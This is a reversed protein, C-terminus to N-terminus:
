EPVKVTISTSSVVKPTTDNNKVTIILTGEDGAVTAAGTIINAGTFATLGTAGSAAALTVSGLKTDTTADTYQGDGNKDIYLDGQNLTGGAQEEIRIVSSVSKTLTIGKVIDDSASETITFVSKYDVKKGATTISPVSKFTVASLEPKNDTVTVRVKGVLVDNADYLAIDSSGLKKNATASATINLETGAALDAIEGTADGNVAVVNKDFVVKYNTLDQPDLKVGEATYPQLRYIVNTEEYKDITADASQGADIQAQTPAKIELVKKASTTNTTVKVSLAGVTVNDENKFIVSTSKDYNSSDTVSHVVTLKYLGQEPYDTDAAIVFSGAVTDDVIADVSSSLFLDTDEVAGVVPDGYQDYVNFKVSDNIDTAADVITLSSSKPTVKAVKREASAVTVSITKTASGYTLTLTATGPTNATFKGTTKDFSVVAANSTKVELKGDALAAAIATTDLITEKGNQTARLETLDVTDGTVFTSSKQTFDNSLDGATTNTLKYSNITTAVLEKNQITIEAQDSVIVDSGKSLTVQVKYETGATLGATKLEGTTTNEFLEGTADQTVGAVKKTAAFSVTYGNVLLDNVNGASGNVKFSVFQNSTDDDYTATDVAVTTAALKYTVTFDKSAVTVKTATDPILASELTVTASKGDAAAVYSSVTNGEVKVDDAKLKNLNTGTVTVKTSNTASVAEVVPPLAAEYAKNNKEAAKVLNKALTTDKAKLAEVEAKVSEILEGAKKLDTTILKKSEIEKYAAYVKLETDVSAAEAKAPTTYVKTLVRRADPGFVKKVAAEFTAIKADLAKKSSLVKSQKGEEVAAEFATRSSKLTVSIAAVYNKARNLSTKSKELKKTYAAKKTKSGGNKAIEKQAAAYYQEALKVEKRIASGSPLKNSKKATNYYLNFAKNVQTTAKTIAKDVSNTAADAQPQAVAVAGTLAIASATAIKIAKKKSM